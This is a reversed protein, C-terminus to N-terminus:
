PLGQLKMLLTSLAFPKGLYDVGLRRAHEAFMATGSMMVLRPVPGELQRMRALLVEGNCIPMELDFL